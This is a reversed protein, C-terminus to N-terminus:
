AVVNTLIYKALLLMPIIKFACIYLFFHLKYFIRVNLMLQYSRITNFVIYLGFSFALVFVAFGSSVSTNYIYILLFFLLLICLVFEAFLNQLFFAKFTQQTDIVWNFIFEIINKVTFFLSLASLIKMFFRVDFSTYDDKIFHEIGIYTVM